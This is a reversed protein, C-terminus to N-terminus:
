LWKARVVCFVNEVVGITTHKGIRQKSVLEEIIAQTNTAALHKDIWERVISDRRIEGNRSEPTM